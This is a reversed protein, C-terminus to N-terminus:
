WTSSSTKLHRCYDTKYVGLIEFFTLYRIKSRDKVEIVTLILKLTEPGLSTYFIPCQIDLYQREM